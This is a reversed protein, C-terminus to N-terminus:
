LDYDTVLAAVEVLADTELSLGTMECAIWVLKDNVDRVKRRWVSQGSRRPRYPRISGEILTGRQDHPSRGFWSYDTLLSRWCRAARASCIRLSRCFASRLCRLKMVIPM